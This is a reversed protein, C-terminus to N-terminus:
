YIFFDADFVFISNIKKASIIKTKTKFSAMAETNTQNVGQLTWYGFRPAM